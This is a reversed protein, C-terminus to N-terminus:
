EHSLLLSAHSFATQFDSHTFVVEVGTCLCEFTDDHFSFILHRVPHMDFEPFRIRNQARMRTIWPSNFVECVGFSDFGRGSMPHGELAEDNPYGFTTWMCSTFRLVAYARSTIAGAQRSITGVILFCAESFQLLRVGEACYELGIDILRAYPEGKAAYLDAEAVHIAAQLRRLAEDDWREKRQAYFADHSARLRAELEELSPMVSQLQAFM